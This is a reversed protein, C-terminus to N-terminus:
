RALIAAEESSGRAPWNAGEPFASAETRGRRGGTDGSTEPAPPIQPEEASVTVPESADRVEAPAGEAPEDPHTRLDEILAGVTVFQLGRERLAPVIVPVVDLAKAHIDHMLIIDGGRADRLIQDIIEQATTGSRWDNTDISWLCIDMGLEGYVHEVLARNANGYPPRFQRSPGAGAAILIEELGDVEQRMREASVERLNRHTMSHNAIEFDSSVLAALTRPNARCPNGLVFFTAPCDLEELIRMLRPTREAHPGDDFTLAVLSSSRRGHYIYTDRHNQPVPAAMAATAALWLLTALAPRM